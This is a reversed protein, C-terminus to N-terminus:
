RPRWCHLTYMWQRRRKGLDRDETMEAAKETGEVVMVVVTEEVAEELVAGVSDSDLETVVAVMAELGEGVTEAGVQAAVVARQAVVAWDAEVRTAEEEVWQVAVPAEQGEWAAETGGVAKAVVAWEEKVVEKVVEKELGVERKVMAKAM